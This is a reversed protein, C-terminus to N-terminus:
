PILSRLIQEWVELDEDLFHGKGELYHTNRTPINGIFAKLGKIPSLTDEIGHWIEVPSKIKNLKFGWNKSFLSLENVAENANVKYAEAFHLINTEIVEVDQLIKQDSECLHGVNKKFQLVIFNM